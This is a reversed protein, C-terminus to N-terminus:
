LVNPVAIFRGEREGSNDLLAENLDPDSKATSGSDARFHTLPVNIAEVDAGNFPEDGIEATQMAAFYSLTERFAPFATELEEDSTNLRALSATIRLDDISLAAAGSITSDMSLSPM